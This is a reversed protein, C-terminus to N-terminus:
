DVMGLTILDVVRWDLWFEDPDLGRRAIYGVHGGRPAMVLRTRPSWQDATATFIQGPVMPDDQSTIVTTPVRIQPMFQLASCSSYYDDATAYGSMPATYWNDFDRLRRPRSSGSPMPADPLLRRREDLDKMLAGLFHRDYLRNLTGNLTDVSRSLDIPPNIAIAQRIQEPVLEPNEGLYKLLINGGLSVGFLILYQCRPATTIDCQNESSPEDGAFECWTLVSQVVLDLDRSCGAHYPYRALGAGAGCGRLDWRFVRVGREVLKTTLRVLLPSLHSGSLGHLLLAAGATPKWLPPCDDHVM